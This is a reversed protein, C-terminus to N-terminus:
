PLLSLSDLTHYKHEVLSGKVNVIRFGSSDAGLPRGVPGTTIMELDGSRGYSNRHYHGAFVQKVGYQKFLDLYMKRRESNINFYEDPENPDKLFLSHHMFVMINKAGSKNAKELNIRLWYEQAAAEEPALSPDKILSSNIIIGIMNGSRFTYRDEGFHQKYLELSAPTPVNEVDHNGSVSYLKISPDLKAAIRKYETIQALDGPKNVLDGCIVVFAPKLRNSEAIAKEMNVTERSFEKNANFFGFQTDAMQFFTYPKSSCGAILLLLITIITGPYFTRKM